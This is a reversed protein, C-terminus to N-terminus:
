IGEKDSRFKELLKEMLRIHGEIGKYITEAVAEKYTYAIENRRDTMELCKVTEEETM